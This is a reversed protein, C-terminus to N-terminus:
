RNIQKLSTDNYQTTEKVILSLFLVYLSIYENLLLACMFIIGSLTLAGIRPM